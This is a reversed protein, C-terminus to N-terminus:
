NKEPIFEFFRFPSWWKSYFFRDALLKFDQQFYHNFVLRFTNVPSITNYLKLDGGQPLYFANLIALREEKNTKEFSKWNLMSGPGHDAQLIIIAEGNSSKIIRRVTKLIERDIFILQEVYHDIYESKQIRVGRRKLHNGDHFKFRSMLAKENVGGDRAFVFPPHPCIIHAFVFRPSDSGGANPLTNLTYLINRIHSKHAMSIRKNLDLHDTPDRAFLQGMLRDFVSLLTTNILLHDFEDNLFGRDRKLYVDANSLNTISYESAYAEITYGLKRLLRIVRSNKILVKLALRNRSNKGLEEALKDLYQFNLSSALSLSTQAYNAYSKEAVFFGLDRMSQVFATNDHNFLQQLTDTRAHGDIILYYIDRFKRKGVPVPQFKEEAFLSVIKENYRGISINYYIAQSVTITVLITSLINLFSNLKVLKVQSRLLRYLLFGYMVFLLLLLPLHGCFGEILNFIHGYSFFITITLSLILCCKIQDKIMWKLIFFFFGTLFVILLLPFLIRIIAVHSHNVNYLFVIPYIAFLFPHLLAQHWKQPPNVRNEAM